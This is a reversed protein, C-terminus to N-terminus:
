YGANGEKNLLAGEAFDALGRRANEVSDFDMTNGGKHNTHGIGAILMKLM